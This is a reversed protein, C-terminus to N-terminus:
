NFLNKAFFKLLFYGIICFVAAVVLYAGLGFAFFAIFCALAVYGVKKGTGDVSKVYPVMRKLMFAFYIFAFVSVVIEATQVDMFLQLVTASIAFVAGAILSYLTFNGMFTGLAPAFLADEWKDIFKLSMSYIILRNIIAVFIFCEKLIVGGM